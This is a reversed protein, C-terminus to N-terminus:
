KIDPFNPRAFEGFLKRAESDYARAAKVICFFQGLYRLKKNFGIQSVWKNRNKSWTVGKFGSTNDCPRGRNM